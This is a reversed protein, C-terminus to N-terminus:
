KKVKNLQYDFKSISHSMTDLKCKIKQLSEKNSIVTSSLTSPYSNFYDLHKQQREKFDNDVDSQM